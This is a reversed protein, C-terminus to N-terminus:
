KTRRAIAAGLRLAEKGTFKGIIGQTDSAAMAAFDRDNQEKLTPLDVDAPWENSPRSLWNNIGEYLKPDLTRIHARTLGQGLWEGYVRQVFAPPTEPGRLGQYKEPAETPLSIDSLHNAVPFREDLAQRFATLFEVRSEEGVPASRAILEVLEEVTYKQEISGPRSWPSIDEPKRFYLEPSVEKTDINTANISGLIEDSASAPPSTHLKTESMRQSVPQSADGGGALGFVIAAQTRSRVNLRMMVNKLHREVTAPSIDLEQAILENPMGAFMSGLVQRERESLEELRQRAEAKAGSSEDHEALLSAAAERDTVGLRKIAAEVTEHVAKTPLGLESAIRSPGIHSGILRLCMREQDTLKSISENM